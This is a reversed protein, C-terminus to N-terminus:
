VQKGRHISKWFRANHQIRFKSTEIFRNGSLNRRACSKQFNENWLLQADAMGAGWFFSYCGILGVAIGGGSCWSVVVPVGLFWGSNVWM